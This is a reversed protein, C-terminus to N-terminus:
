RRYSIIATIVLMIFILVEAFLKMWKQTNLEIVEKSVKDIDKYFPNLANASIEANRISEGFVLIEKKPYLTDYKQLFPNFFIWYFHDKLAYAGSDKPIIQFSYIKAGIVKNQDRRILQQSNPPYIDFYALDKSVPSHIAAINGEGIIRFEYLFDEGTKINEQLNGEQLYYNGVAVQDKLPHPPLEKVSVSRPRTYFTKSITESNESFDNPNEEDEAIKNKVLMNLKITPFSM